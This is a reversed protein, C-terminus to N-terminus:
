VQAPSAPPARPPPRWDPAPAAVPQAGIPSDFDAAAPPRLVHRPTAPLAFANVSAAVQPHRTFRLVIGRPIRTGARGAGQGTCYPVVITRQRPQAWAALPTCVYAALLMWVLIGRSSSRLRAFATM